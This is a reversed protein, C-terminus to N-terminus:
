EKNNEILKVPSGDKLDEINPDKIVLDAESLGESIVFDSGTEYSVVVEQIAARGEKMLLVADKDEEISFVASKPVAIVDKMEKLIFNLTVDYNEALILDGKNEIFVKVKVKKENLGLGSVTNDAFSSIDIIKGTGHLDHSNTKQTIDVKDGIHLYIVDDTLVRSEIRLDDSDTVTVLPSLPPAFEGSKVSVKSIVGDIPSFIKTKARQEKLQEINEKIAKEQGAYMQSSGVKPKSQEHILSLEKDQAEKKLTLRDKALILSDLEQKALAGSDYLNQADEIKKELDALEIRSAEIELQKAEVMSRYLTPDSMRKQGRVSQLNAELESIKHEIDSTDLSILLDGRSVRTNEKISSLVRGGIESSLTITDSGVVTGTEEISHDLDSLKAEYVDVAIKKNLQLFATFAIIIGILIWLIWKYLKKM